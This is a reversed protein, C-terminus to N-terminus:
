GENPEPVADTLDLEAQGESSEVSAERKSVSVHFLCVCGRADVINRIEEDDDITLTLILKKGKGCKQNDISGMIDFENTIELGCEKDSAM